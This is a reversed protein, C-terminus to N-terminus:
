ENHIKYICRICCCTSVRLVQMYYSVAWSVDFFYYDVSEVGCEACLKLSNEPKKKRMRKKGGKHTHNTVEVKM